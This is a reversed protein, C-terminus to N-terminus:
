NKFGRFFEDHTYKSNSFLLGVMRRSHWSSQQKKRVRLFKYFAEHYKFAARDVALLEEEINPDYILNDLRDSYRGYGLLTCNRPLYRIDTDDPALVYNGEPVPIMKQEVHQLYVKIQKAFNKDLEELRLMAASILEQESSTTDFILDQPHGEFPGYAYEAEWLDALQYKRDHTLSSIPETKQVLFKGDQLVVQFESNASLKSCRIVGGGGGDQGGSFSYVSTMTVLMVLGTKFQKFGIHNKM